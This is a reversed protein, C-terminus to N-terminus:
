NQLDINQIKQEMVMKMMSIHGEKKKPILSVRKLMSEVKELELFYMLLNKKM